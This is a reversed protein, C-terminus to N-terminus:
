GANSKENENWTMDINMSVTGEERGIGTVSASTLGTADPSGKRVTQEGRGDGMGDKDKGGM